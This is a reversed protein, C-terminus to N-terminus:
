GVSDPETTAPQRGTNTDARRQKNSRNSGEHKDLMEGALDKIWEMAQAAVTANKEISRAALEMASSQKQIVAQLQRNDEAFREARDEAKDAREEAKATRKDASDVASVPVIRGTIFLALFVVQAAISIWQILDTIQLPVGAAVQVLVFAIYVLHPRLLLLNM